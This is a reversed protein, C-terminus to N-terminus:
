RTWPELGQAGVMGQMMAASIRPADKEGDGTARRNASRPGAPGEPDIALAAGLALVRM